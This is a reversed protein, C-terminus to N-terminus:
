KRLVIDDIYAGEDQNSYDSHFYFAIWVSDEGCVTDIDCTQSTWSGHSGSISYGLFNSGNTSWGWYLYDYDAETRVWRYFSFEAQTAGVLSFPGYIMWADADPPYPGPPSVSSGVCYGSWSGNHPRYSEDDWTPNGYLAWENPFVGEFDETKINVWGDEPAPEESAADAKPGSPTLVVRTDPNLTVRMPVSEAAQSSVRVEAPAATPVGPIRAQGTVLVPQATLNALTALLVLAYRAM